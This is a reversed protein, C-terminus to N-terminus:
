GGNTWVIAQWRSMALGDGSSINNDIINNIPFKPVFKLIIKILIWIM